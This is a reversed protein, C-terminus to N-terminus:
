PQASVLMPSALPHRLSNSANHLVSIFQGAHYYQIRCTPNPFNRLNNINARFGQLSSKAIRGPTM